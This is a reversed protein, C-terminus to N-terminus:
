AWGVRSTSSTVRRRRAMEFVAVAWTFILWTPAPVRARGPRAFSPEAGGGLGGTRNSALFCAVAIRERSESFGPLGQVPGAMMVSYLAVVTMGGPLRKWRSVIPFKTIM